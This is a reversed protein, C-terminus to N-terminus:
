MGNGSATKEPVPQTVDWHEVIKGASDLRFIDVIAATKGAERGSVEVHLIVYDGDVFAQKIESHSNPYRTKLLEVFQRFGAV